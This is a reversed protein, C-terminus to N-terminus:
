AARRRRYGRRYVADFDTMGVVAAEAIGQGTFFRAWPDDGFNMFEPLSAMVAAMGADIHGHTRFSMKRIVGGPYDTVLSTATIAGGCIFASVAARKKQRTWLLGGIAFFSAAVAYDIVAHATPSIVKPMRNALASVAKTTLPM